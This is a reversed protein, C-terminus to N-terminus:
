KRCLREWINNSFTTRFNKEVPFYRSNRKLLIAPMFKKSINRKFEKNFKELMLESDYRTNYTQISNDSIQKFSSLVHNIYEM